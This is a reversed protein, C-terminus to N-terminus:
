KPIIRDSKKLVLFYFLPSFNMVEIIVKEWDQQGYGEKRQKDWQLITNKLTAAAAGYIGTGRLITDLAGNIVRKQKDEIVEEEEDGFMLFALGSLSVM